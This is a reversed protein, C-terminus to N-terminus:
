RDPEGSRPGLRVVGDAARSPRQARGDLPRGAGRGDRRRGRIRAKGSLNAALRRGARQVRRSIQFRDTVRAPVRGGACRLRTPADGSYILGSRTYGVVPSGGGPLREALRVKCPASCSRADYVSRRKAGEQPRAGGTASVVTARM